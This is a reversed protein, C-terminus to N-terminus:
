RSFEYVTQAAAYERPDAPDRVIRLVGEQALEEVVPRLEQASTPLENALDAVCGRGGRKWLGQIVKEKLLQKERPLEAVARGETNTMIGEQSAQITVPACGFYPLVFFNRVLRFLLALTTRGKFGKEIGNQCERRESNVM